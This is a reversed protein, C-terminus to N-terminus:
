AVSSGRPGTRGCRRPAVAHCDAIMALRRPDVRGGGRAFTRALRVVGQLDNLATRIIDVSSDPDDIWDVPVEHIRIGNREALVLLETDFFWSQDEIMPVLVGAVDQRLAKFGCQADTFHCRLVTHLIRNYTRSIMDRKWGRRVRSDAALRTGIAVGSHGSVLPAVLPHLADLDTSLDADVYALVEARSREWAARLAHGRGKEELRLVRVGTLTRELARALALTADTSANDAITISWSLPFHEELYDHLRRVSAVIVHEENYVPVVIEVSPRPRGRGIPNTPPDTRTRDPAGGVLPIIPEFTATM